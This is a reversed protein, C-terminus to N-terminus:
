HSCTSSSALCGTGSGSTTWGDKLADYCDRAAKQFNPLKPSTRAPLPREFGQPDPKNTGEGQKVRRRLAYARARAEDLSVDYASGLGFERRKGDRQVRMTWFKGGSPRVM